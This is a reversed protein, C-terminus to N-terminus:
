LAGRYWQCFNIWRWVQWTFPRRGAVIQDFHEVVKRQDLFPLRLDESLWQRVTGSMGLLWQKEPTAFGIKDRRDLVADPVIGRMAARLLHKSEGQLSVLYEEPLALAFDALQSTLFPVRSEISFRMSNRDGHRLLALLGRQSLSSAMSEMMRRGPVDHVKPLEPFVMQVGSERLPGPRIWEPESSMGNLRRLQQHLGGESYVGAVRKLGQLRSRGPWRSWAHLFGWADAYRRQELLSRIRQGPYANYGGLLEDAGQGDLTVTMGCEKALRFVRYQAYISTGGFPEGQTAILDELDSALDSSSVSVKHANAGVHQNVRDVWAEESVMSDRAIFSFTHIPADPELHRMACVIASSDLGGSLAAGLPVDSRLHLRVSDLLLSRLRSAADEFSMPEMPVISPSWWRQLTPKSQRQLELTLMHGPLLSHVDEVFTDAGFDYEGHVLYDYARQWNLQNRGERLARLAPLESAFHFGEPDFAYYLPKIGYGDRAAFLTQTERDVLVFAFMGVFRHLANAGWAAWAALLVETDSRTRFVVGQQELEARLELHNYIEGNFVIALRGDGSSMPQHAAASLDIVSLRAHGLLLTGSRMALSEFGRHDPGRHRLAQLAAEMQRSSSTSEGYWFGGAIGCM